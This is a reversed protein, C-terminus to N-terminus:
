LTWVSRVLIRDFGIAVIHVQITANVLMFSDYEELDVVVSSRDSLSGVKRADDLTRSEDSLKEGRSAAPRSHAVSSISSDSTSRTSHEVNVLIFEFNSGEPSDEDDSRNVGECSDGVSNVGEIIITDGGM